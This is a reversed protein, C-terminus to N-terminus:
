NADHASLPHVHHNDGQAGLAVLEDAFEDQPELGEGHADVDDGRQHVERHGLGGDFVKEANGDDAEALRGSARTTVEGRM